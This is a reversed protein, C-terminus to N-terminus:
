LKSAIYDMLIEVQYSMTVAGPDLHGVGKNAQYCARGRVAEMDATSQAGDLAAKKVLAVTEKESLGKAICDKYCEVAPHLTDIMTKFGPKANGRNMVGNLMAELVNCMDQNEIVEKGKLTKAAEMYASGYLVGGSGGIVSMMIMGIKKFCDFLNLTELDPIAEVLSEFGMNINSWHDGDGTASDLATVYEGNEHIKAYALKIYETYDKSTLQFGM